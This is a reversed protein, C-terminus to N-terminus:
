RSAGLENERSAKLRKMRKRIFERKLTSVHDVFVTGNLHDTEHQVAIALLEDCRLTQENGDVDLYKVTVVAARDVDESEGPISLCGETYTTEGELTVIEPNIMALPKSEPQRPTTDLVIVRQLVGVQPAALGVGDAAYMTEFMDKVLARVSDDVKTVPKAKQKLIPDPWILIERVMCATKVGGARVPLGAGAM